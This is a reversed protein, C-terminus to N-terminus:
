LASCIHYSESDTRATGTFILCQLSQQQHLMHYMEWVPIDFAEPQLGEQSNSHAAGGHRVELTAQGGQVELSEQCSLLLSPGLKSQPAEREGRFIPRNVAKEAECELSMHQGCKVMESQKQSGDSVRRRRKSM